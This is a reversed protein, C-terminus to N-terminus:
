ISRPNYKEIFDSELIARLVYKKTKPYLILCNLYLTNFCILDLNRGDVEVWGTDTNKKIVYNEKLYDKLQIVISQSNEM